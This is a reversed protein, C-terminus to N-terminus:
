GRVFFDALFPRIESPGRAKPPTGGYQVTHLASRFRAASASNANIFAVLFNEFSETPPFTSCCLAMLDWARQSSEERPNKTLQKMLQCYIETRLEPCKLGMTLGQSAVGEGM